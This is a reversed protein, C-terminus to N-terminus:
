NLGPRKRVWGWNGSICDNQLTINISYKRLFCKKLLPCFPAHHPIPLKGTKSPATIVTFFLKSSHTCGTWLCCYFSQDQSAESHWSHDRQAPSSIMFPAGSLLCHREATGPRRHPLGRVWSDAPRAAGAGPNSPVCHAHRLHPKRTLAVQSWPEFALRKKKKTTTGNSLQTLSQSGTSQLM